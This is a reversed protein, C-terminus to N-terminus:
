PVIVRAGPARVVGRGRACERAVEGFRQRVQIRNGKSGTFGLAICNRFQMLRYASAMTSGGRVYPPQLPTGRRPYVLDRSVNKIAFRVASKGM